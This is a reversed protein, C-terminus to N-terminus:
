RATLREYIQELKPVIAGWDYTASVFRYASEGLAARHSPSRLLEAVASAFEEPRDAVILERGSTVPFGECGLSTSVIARRMAMAELLKFRTGGGALLPAIYVDAQAIYPRVDDVQGTLVIDPDARLPDLRPSPKQGVVLLRARPHAQKVAPWVRRAFWLVADVNPRFDMKGTFVIAPFPSDPTPLAFKAYQAIDIGNYIVTPRVSPALRQLSAADEPSVCLVADAARLARREFARLRQWQVFSYAAGHWRRPTRADAEFTRKQLLYEANHEDFVFRASHPLRAAGIMYRALEIGEFQVIDFHHDCLHAHLRQEFAPSWLRWAMDPLMSAALTRLRDGPTRAPVPVTVVSRCARRLPEPLAGRAGAPREDFSILWIEHRAALHSILGWNRLATGQQPPYPLQPTLFLLRM